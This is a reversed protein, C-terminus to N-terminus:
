EHPKEAIRLKASRSRPNEEIEKASPVIPKRNVTDLAKIVRGYLDKEEIGKLNGKNIFNKVLRDELSHYTIVALRGGPALTDPVSELFLELSKLEENVEIRLAQFVQSYYKSKKDSKHVTKDLIDLLQGTTKFPSLKRNTVIAGALTRANKVEGYHAFITQLQREPYQNLVDAATQQIDRDMRMDLESEWRFSFGREATNFQHSSVGLDALIGNVPVAQNYELFNSIWRYDHDVYTIREDDIRNEHTNDDRDFAILRGGELQNLLETSHGGGGFTVDVYVGNAQLNLADISEQLLVPVHYESMAVTTPM